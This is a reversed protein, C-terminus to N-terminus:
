KLTYNEDHTHANTQPPTFILKQSTSSNGPQALNDPHQQQRLIHTLTSSQEGM